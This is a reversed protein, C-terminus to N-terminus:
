WIEFLLEGGVKQKRADVGSLVGRPTSVVLIGEGGKVRRFDKYGGYRRVSPRSLFKVGQIPREPNLQLEMVKKFSRGKVELKKIFDYKQLVEVVAQDMKTFPSKLSKKDAAQANKIKVLLNIYM